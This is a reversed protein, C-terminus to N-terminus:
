GTTEPDPRIWWMRLEPARRTVGSMAVFRTPHPLVGSKPPPTAPLTALLEKWFPRHPEFRRGAEAIHRVVAQSREMEALRAIVPAKIGEKGLLAAGLRIAQPSYPAAVSTLAMALEEDSFHQRSVPAVNPLHDGAYHRCGRAVALAERHEGTPLGLRAAKLLLPSVHPPAGLKHALTVTRLCAPIAPPVGAGNTEGVPYICIGVRRIHEAVEPDTSEGLEILSFGYPLLLDDLVDDIQGLTRWGLKSGMLALDIDSGNRHNGKARSGFLVAKEVEPFRALVAVIQAVTKESLGHKTTM